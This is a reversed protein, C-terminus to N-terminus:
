LENSLYDRAQIVIECQKGSPPLHEAAAQQSVVRLQSIGLEIPNNHATM